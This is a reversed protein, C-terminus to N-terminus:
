SFEVLGLAAEKVRFRGSSISYVDDTEPVHSPCEGPVERALVRELSTRRNRWATSGVSNCVVNVIQAAGAVRMQAISCYGAEELRQIVRDGIGGETALMKRDAASFRHVVPAQLRAVDNFGGLVLRIPVSATGRETLGQTIPLSKLVQCTTSM